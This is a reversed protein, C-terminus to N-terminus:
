KRRGKPAIECLAYGFSRAVTLRYHTDHEVLFQRMWTVYQRLIHRDRERATPIGLQLLLAEFPIVLGLHAYLYALLKVNTAPAHVYHGNIFLLLRREGKFIGPGRAFAIRARKRRGFERNM